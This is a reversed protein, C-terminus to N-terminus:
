FLTAYAEEKQKLETIRRELYDLFSKREAADTVVHHASLKVGDLVTCVTELPKYAGTARKKVFHDIVSDAARYFGQLQTM